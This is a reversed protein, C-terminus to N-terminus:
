GFSWSLPLNYTLFSKSLLQEVGTLVGYFFVVSDDESAFAVSKVGALSYHLAGVGRGVMPPIQSLWPLWAKWGCKRGGRLRLPSWQSAQIELGVLCYLAGRGMRPCTLPLRTFSDPSESSGPLCSTMEEVGCHWRLLSSARRDRGALSIPPPRTPLWSEWEVLVLSCRGPTLPLQSRFM